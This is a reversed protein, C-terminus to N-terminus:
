ECRFLPESRACYAVWGFRTWAPFQLVQPEAALAPMGAADLRIQLQSRKRNVAGENTDLGQGPHRPQSTM